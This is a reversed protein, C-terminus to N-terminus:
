RLIGKTLQASVEGALPPLFFAGCARLNEEGAQPPPTRFPRLPNKLILLSM